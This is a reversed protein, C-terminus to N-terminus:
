RAENTPTTEKQKIAYDLDLQEFAKKIEVVADALSKVDHGKYARDIIQEEFYSICYNLVDQKTNKEGNFVRLQESQKRM